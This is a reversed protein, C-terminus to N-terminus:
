FWSQSKDIDKLLECTFVAKGRSAQVSSRQCSLLETGLCQRRRVINYTHTTWDHFLFERTTCSFLLNASKWFVCVLVGIIIVSYNLQKNGRSLAKRSRTCPTHYLVYIWGRSSYLDVACSPFVLSFGCFSFNHIMCFVVYLHTVLTKIVSPMPRTSKNVKVQCTGYLGSWEGVKILLWNYVFDSNM